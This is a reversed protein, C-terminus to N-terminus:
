LRWVFSFAAVIAAKLIDFWHFRRSDFGRGFM